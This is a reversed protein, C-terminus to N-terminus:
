LRESHRGPVIFHKGQRCEAIKNGLFKVLSALNVKKPRGTNFEGQTAAGIKQKLCSNMTPGVAM